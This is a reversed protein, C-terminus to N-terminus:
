LYVWALSFALFATNERGGFAFSDSGGAVAVQVVGLALAVDAPHHSGDAVVGASVAGDHLHVESIRVLVLLLGFVEKRGLSGVGAM